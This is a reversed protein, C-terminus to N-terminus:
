IFNLRAYSGYWEKAVEDYAKAADEEESFSGLYYCNGNIKIDTRWKGREIRVGIYQSQM